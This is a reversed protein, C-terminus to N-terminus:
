GLPKLVWGCTTFTAVGPCNRNLLEEVGPRSHEEETPDCQEIRLKGARFVGTAAGYTAFIQSAEATTEAVVMFQPSPVPSIRFLNMKM